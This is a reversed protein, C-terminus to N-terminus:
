HPLGQEVTRPEWQMRYAEGLIERSIRVIEQTHGRFHSMSHFIAGVGSVDHGQIRRVKALEDAPRGKIAAGAAALADQLRTLLDHKAIGGRASFEAPRDRHDDAGGVGCVIWQTVNGALHLLLNGISNLAPQARWWVQEESLQSICHQIKEFADNLEHIAEQVILASFEDATM